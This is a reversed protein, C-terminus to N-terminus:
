AAKQAVSSKALMLRGIMEASAQSRTLIDAFKGDRLVAIRDSLAFIEDLESSVLLIATGLSAQDLLRQHVYEIAGVDLGRTPQMAILLKPHRSLERGLILKQQNGGSLGRMRGQQGSCKITFERILRDVFRSVEGANIFGHRQIPPRDHNVLIANEAVTFDLVLGERGRDDPVHAVGAALIDETARNTIAEGALVIEGSDVARMGTIAEALERQGNGDVGAVGLIEGAAIELDIGDLGIRGGDGTVRINKMFLMPSGLSKNTPSVPHEIRRGVMHEVLEGESIDRTQWTGVIKGRRMVTVRDSMSMVESLKHTVILIGHGEAALKKLTAGLGAVEQPTLVATPEDLILIKAGRILTKVIEVRQQEGVSLNSVRMNPEVDIGYHQSLKTVEARAARNRLFIRGGISAGIIVNEVVTLTDVLMFHQHVMGIGSDIADRPSRLRLATGDIEVHGADPAEMGYIIKMLTSKGAGNEGLLAHIEGAKLDLSVDANAIVDGYHKSVGVAKIVSFDQRLAATERQSGRKSM